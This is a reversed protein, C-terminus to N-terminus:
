TSPGGQRGSRYSTWAVGVVGPLASLGRGIRRGRAAWMDRRRPGVEPYLQRFLDGPLIVARWLRAPVNRYPRRVAERLWRSTPNNNKRRWEWDHWRHLYVPDSPPDPAEIRLARFLPELTQAAGVASAIEVLRASDTSGVSERLVKTLYDFEVRNREVHMDRLAHLATVVATGMRDCAPIMTGAVEVQSRHRWLHDFADQPEALMGPFARHVDIDCPWSEHIMTTSHLALIRPAPRLQRETWGLSHLADLYCEFDDPSLWVDVDSSVRHRRLEYAEAVHGKIFLAKCGDREAVRSALAHALPVADPLPLHRERM